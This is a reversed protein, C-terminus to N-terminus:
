GLLLRTRRESLWGETYNDRLAQGTRVKLHKNMAELSVLRDLWNRGLSHRVLAMDPSNLFWVEKAPQTGAYIILDREGPDLATGPFDLQFQARQEDNIAAIHQFTARLAQVDIQEEPRRNQFGTQTEEAVKEVTHLSFYKSLATWCGVRHAEIFVNTDILVVQGASFSM